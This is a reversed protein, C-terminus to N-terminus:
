IISIEKNSIVAIRGMSVASCVFTIYDIIYDRRRSNEIFNLIQSNRTVLVVGSTTFSCVDLMLYYFYISCLFFYYYYLSLLLLLLLLYFYFHYKRRLILHISKFPNHNTTPTIVIRILKNM